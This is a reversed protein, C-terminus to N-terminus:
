LRGKEKEDEFVFGLEEMTRAVVGRKKAEVFAKKIEPIRGRIWWEKERWRTSQLGEEDDPALTELTALYEADLPFGFSHFGRRAGGVRGEPGWRGEEMRRREWAEMEEREPLRTKGAWVGAVMVAQSQVVPFPIARTPLGLFALTPHDICFVHQWTGNVREGTTRGAPLFPFTYLYGTAFLVADIGHEVSGDVFEVVGDPRFELIEPLTKIGAPTTPSPTRVSQLLPSSVYPLLQSAIDVGSAANGVLLTKKNHYSLPTRFNLSHQIQSPARTDLGRLSPIYPTNYHGSAIVLADYTQPAHATSFTLNWGGSSTSTIHSIHANFTILHRLDDAYTRLYSLIQDHRPFLPLDSPIPHTSFNMMM